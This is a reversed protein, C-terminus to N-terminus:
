RHEHIEESEEVPMVWLVQSRAVALFPVFRNGELGSVRASTVPIFPQPENLEDSLRREPHVHIMGEIRGGVTQIVVKTPVKHVVETFRKGRDDFETSM